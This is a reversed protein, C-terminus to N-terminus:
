FIDTSKTNIWYKSGIKSRHQKKILWLPARPEGTRVQVTFRSPARFSWFAGTRVATRVPPASSGSQNAGTRVPECRNSGTRVPELRNDTRQDKTPQSTRFWRNSGTRHVPSAWKEDCFWRNSGTSHVPEVPEGTRGVICCSELMRVVRGASLNM